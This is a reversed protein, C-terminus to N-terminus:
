HSLDARMSALDAPFHCFSSDRDTDPYQIVWQTKVSIAAEGVRVNQHNCLLGLSKEIGTDFLVTKSIRKSRLRRLIRLLRNSERPQDQYMMIDRRFGRVQFATLQDSDDTTQADQQLAPQCSGSNEYAIIANIYAEVLERNLPPIKKKKMIMHLLDHHFDAQSM